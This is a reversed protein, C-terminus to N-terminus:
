PASWGRAGLPPGAGASGGGRRAPAQRRPRERAARQRPRQGLGSKGMQKRSLEARAESLKEKRKKIETQWHLRQDQTLWQVCRRIEMETQGLANKSDDGFLVLAARVDRLVDISSVDVPLAM